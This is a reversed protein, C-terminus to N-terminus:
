DAYGSEHQRAQPLLESGFPPGIREFARGCSHDVEHGQPSDKGDEANRHDSRTKGTLAGVM